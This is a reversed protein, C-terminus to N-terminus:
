IMGCGRVEVQTVRNYIGQIHHTMKRKSSELNEADEVQFMRVKVNAETQRVQLKNSKKPIYILYNENFTSFKPAIEQLIKVMDKENKEGEPIRKYMHQYVQYFKIPKRFGWHTHTHTVLFQLWPRCVSDYRRRKFKKKIKLCTRRLNDSNPESKYHEREAKWIISMKPRCWWLQRM